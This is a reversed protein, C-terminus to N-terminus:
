QDASTSQDAAAASVRVPWFRNTAGAHLDATEPCGPQAARCPTTPHCATAARTTAEARLREDRLAPYRTRIRPRSQNERLRLLQRLPRLRSMAPLPHSAKRRLDRRLLCRLLLHSVHHSRFPRPRHLLPAIFRPRARISLLLLRLDLFHFIELRSYTRLRNGRFM